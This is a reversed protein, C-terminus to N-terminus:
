ITMQPRDTQLKNKWMIEFVVFNEFFFM